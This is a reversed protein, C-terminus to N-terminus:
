GTSSVLPRDGPELARPSLWDRICHYTDPHNLLHFHSAGQVHRTDGHPKGDPGVPGAASARRVLVDGFVAGLPHRESAGLGGSVFHYSVGPVPALPEPHNGKAKGADRDLWDEDRLCGFRLDKIGVSRLELFDAFPKVEPVRSFARGGVDVIQELWSGANPSGLCIVHAAHDIWARGEEDAEHCASRAVLGGMSHGIISFEEVPVPWERCLQELLWSLRRGNESIHLGTNYRLYLPTFGLDDRLRQGYTRPASEPAGPDAKTGWWWAEETECLGHVFIAL